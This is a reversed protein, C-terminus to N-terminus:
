GKCASFPRRMSFTRWFITEAHQTHALFPRCKLFTLVTFSCRKEFTKCVNRYRCYYSNTKDLHIRETQRLLASEPVFRLLRNEFLSIRFSVLVHQNQKWFSIPVNIRENKVNRSLMSLTRYFITKVHQTTASFVEM